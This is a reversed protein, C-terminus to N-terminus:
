VPKSLPVQHEVFVLFNGANKFMKFPKTKKKEKTKKDYDSDATKAPHLKIIDKFLSFHTTSFEPSTM